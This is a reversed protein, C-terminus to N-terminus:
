TPSVDGGTSPSRRIAESASECAAMLVGILLWGIMLETTETALNTLGIVLAVQGFAVVYASSRRSWARVFIAIAFAIFLALGLLGTDNLVLLALSAVHEPVGKVVHLAEFSATGRGLFLHGRIDNMIPNLQTIRGVVDVLNLIADLLGGRGPTLGAVPVTYSGFRDVALTAGIVGLSALAGSGLAALELRRRLGPLVIGLAAMAAAVLWATRTVSDILGGVCATIGIWAHRFRSPGLYSWAVAGAAAFAGFVNQEWLTGYAGLHGSAPNPAIAITPGFVHLLYALSGYTAETAFVILLWRTVTELNEASRDGALIRRPLLFGLSCVAVLAIIKASLRRDPSALLSSLISCVFWAGLIVEPLNPRLWSVDREHVMMAAIALLAGLGAIEEPRLDIPGARFTFHDIVSTAVLLSVLGVRLGLIRVYLAGLALVAVVMAATTWGRSVWSLLGALVGFGVAAIWVIAFDRLSATGGRSEVNSSATSM